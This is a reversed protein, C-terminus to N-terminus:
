VQLNLLSGRPLNSSPQPLTKLTSAAGTADGGSRPTLSSSRVPEVPSPARNRQLADLASSSFASLSNSAIMGAIILRM